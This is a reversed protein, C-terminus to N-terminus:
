DGFVVSEIEDEVDWVRAVDQLVDLAKNSDNFRLLIEMALESAPLIELLEDVIYSANAWQIRPDNDRNKWKAM